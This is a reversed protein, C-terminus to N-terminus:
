AEAVAIGQRKAEYMAQDAQSLLADASMNGGSRRVAMGISAAIRVGQIEVEQVARSFRRAAALAGPADTDPLIMAFEDGGWRYLRDSDRAVSRLADAVRVLAEDGTAHGLRDNVAKFGTLDAILLATPTESRDARALEKALGEDFARRNELGTLADLTSALHLDRRHRAERLVFAIAPAFAKAVKTDEDQFANADSFADLNVVAIVDGRDVIPMCLNAVIARLSSQGETRGDSAVVSAREMGEPDRAIRAAGVIWADPDGHWARLHENGLTVDALSAPDFGVVGAYHFRDDQGVLLSGAEAGPVLDVLEALLDQTAEDFGLELLRHEVALMRERVRAERDRELWLRLARAFDAVLARDDATWQRPADHFLLLHTKAYSRLPMPRVAMAGVGAGVFAPVALPDEAYAAVFRAVGAQYAEHILGTGLPWTRHLLDDLEPWDDTVVTRARFVGGEYHVVAVARTGLEERLTALAAELAAEQPLDAVLIEGLRSRALARRGVRLIAEAREAAAVVRIIAEREAPLFPQFRRVEVVATLTDESRIPVAMARESPAHTAMGHTQARLVFAEPADGEPADGKAADSIPADVVLGDGPVIRWTTVRDPGFRGLLRPLEHVVDFPAGSGEIEELHDLVTELHASPAPPAGFVRRRVREPLAQPLFVAAAALAMGAAGALSVISAEAVVAAAVLVLSAIRPRPGASRAATWAVLAVAAGRPAAGLPAVLSTAYVFAGLLIPGLPHTRLEPM